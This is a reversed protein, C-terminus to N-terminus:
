LRRQVYQPGATAKTKQFSYKQSGRRNAGGRDAVHISAKRSREVELLVGPLLRSRPGATILFYYYYFIV